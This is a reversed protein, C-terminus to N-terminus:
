NRHVEILLFEFDQKNRRLTTALQILTDFVEEPDEVSTTYTGTAKKTYVGQDLRTGALTFNVANNGAADSNFCVKVVSTYHNSM